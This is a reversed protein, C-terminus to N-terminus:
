QIGGQAVGYRTATLAPRPHTEPRKKNINRVNYDADTPHSPDLDFSREGPNRM